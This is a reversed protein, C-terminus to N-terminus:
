SYCYSVNYICNGMTYIRQHRSARLTNLVTVTGDTNTIFLWNADESTTGSLMAMDTPQKILHSSLVSRDHTVYADENFSYVFDYITKGNRDVFITSGDVDVVEVYAHVM